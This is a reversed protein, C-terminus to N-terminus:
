NFSTTSGSLPNDHYPPIDKTKDSKDIRLLTVEPDFSIRMKVGHLKVTQSLLLLLPIALQHNTIREDEEPNIFPPPMPVSPGDLVLGSRTYHAGILWFAAAVYGQITDRFESLTGDAALCSLHILVVAIVCIEEVDKVSAPPLTAQFKNQSYRDHCYDCCENASKSCSYTQVDQTSRELLNGGAASNLSNQDTPNLANYFTDLQHLETFGNYFAHVLSIWTVDGHRM